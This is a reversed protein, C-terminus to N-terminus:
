SKAFLTDKVIQKEGFYNGVILTDNAYGKIEVDVEFNQAYSSVVSLISFIVLYVVKFINRTM